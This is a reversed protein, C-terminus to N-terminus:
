NGARLEDYLSVMERAVTSSSFRERVREAAARGMHLRLPEDEALRRLAAALGEVDEPEVLFGTEGDVVLEPLGGTATAVVPLAAAMAELVAIPLNDGRTPLAFVDVDLLRAGVDAVVGHFDADIGLREARLELERRLSGGGFVDVHIGTGIRGVADVLLDVGKRQELIGATAVRVPEHRPGPEARAPEVGNPIVRMRSRSFGHRALFDRLAASPVVTTGLRSLAAEIRMLGHLLWAARLRSTGPEAKGDARGVMGFIEDPVGHLTHVSVAGVTPAQPRVLLGTRRDHTHVVDAGALLSRIRVAGRLDRKSALPAAVGPVGRQEFADAISTDACLVSVDHGARAVAPALDLLHTLPGGAALSCAYVVRM